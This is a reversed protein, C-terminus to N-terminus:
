IVIGRKEESFQCNTHVSEIESAIKILVPVDWGYKLKIGESIKIALDDKESSSFVVNGSQIYTVVEKFGLSEFLSRLDTM